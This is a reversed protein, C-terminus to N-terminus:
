VSAPNSRAVWGFAWIKEWHCASVVVRIEIGRRWLLGKNRQHNLFHDNSVVYFSVLTHLERYSSRFRRTLKTSDTQWNLLAPKYTKYFRNTLKKAFSHRDLSSSKSAETRSWGAGLELAFIWLFRVVRLPICKRTGVPRDFHGFFSLTVM